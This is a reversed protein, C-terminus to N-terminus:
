KKEWKGAGNLFYTGKPANKAIEEAYIMGVAGVPAKEEKARKEYLASRQANIRAVLDLTSKSPRKERPVALGDYREGVMESADVAKPVNSVPTLLPGGSHEMTADTSRDISTLSLISEDEVDRAAVKEVRQRVDADLKINLNVTIPEKPVEVAIKPTCGLVALLLATASVSRIDHRM